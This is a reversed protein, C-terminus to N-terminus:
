RDNALEIGLERYYRVAGPHIPLFTDRTINEYITEKAASHAQVLRAHKDFTTKVIQYALDDSLDKHAVVFNFLGITQYEVTLSPYMGQRIVSDSLEPMRQRLIGIQDSTFPIFQMGETQDLELLAPVPVGTALAVGDLQKASIKSMMEEVSGNVLLAPIKLTDFIRPFYDGSTSGRPGAGIRKGTLEDLSRLGLRKSVAIEFPSDYMPLLARMARFRQGKTWEGSGNWAEWGIGMTILGLAAHGTEILIINRTPGQTAQAAVEIALENSLIDALAQGYVYYTGGPSATAIAISKPWDPEAAWANSLCLLAVALTLLSARLKM